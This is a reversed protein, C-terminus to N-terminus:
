AARRTANDGNRGKRGVIELVSMALSKRAEVSQQAYDTESRSEAGM